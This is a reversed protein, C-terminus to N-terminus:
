AQLFRCLGCQDARTSNGVRDLIFRDEDVIPKVVMDEFEEPSEPRRTKRVPVDRALFELAQATQGPAHMAVPERGKIDRRVPWLAACGKLGDALFPCPHHDLERFRTEARFRRAIPL